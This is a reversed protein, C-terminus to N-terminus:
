TQATSRHPLAKEAVGLSTELFVGTIGPVPRQGDSLPDWDRASGCCGADTAGPLLGLIVGFGAM